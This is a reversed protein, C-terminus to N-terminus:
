CLASHLCISTKTKEIVITWISYLCV